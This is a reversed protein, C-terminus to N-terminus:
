ERGNDATEADAPDEPLHTASASQNAVPSERLKDNVM